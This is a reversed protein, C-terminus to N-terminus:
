CILLLSLVVLSLYRRLEGTEKAMDMRRTKDVSVLATLAVKVISNDEAVEVDVVNELTLEVGVVDM